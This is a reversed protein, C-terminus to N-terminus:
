GADQQSQGSHLIDHATTKTWGKIGSVRRFWLRKIREANEPNTELPIKGVVRVNCFHTSVLVSEVYDPVIYEYTEVDREGPEIVLEDKDWELRPSRLLYWEPYEYKEARVFAKAFSREVHEDALPALQEVSFLGDRFEVKVRSTNHM